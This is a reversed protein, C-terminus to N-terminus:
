RKVVVKTPRLPKDEPGKEHPHVYTLRRERHQPGCPQWRMHGRVRWRFEHDAAEIEGERRIRGSARRELERLTIVTAVHEPPQEGTAKEVERRAPRSLRTRETTPIKSNAFALLKALQTATQNEPYDPDLPWRLGPPLDSVAVFLGPKESGPPPFLFRFLRFAMGDVNTPQVYFGATEYIRTEGEPLPTKFDEGVALPTAIPHTFTMQFGDYPVPEADLGYGDPLELDLALELTSVIWWQVPNWLLSGALSIQVNLLDDLPAGEPPLAFIHDGREAATGLLSVLLLTNGRVNDFTRLEKKPDKAYTELLPYEEHAGERVRDLLERNESNM